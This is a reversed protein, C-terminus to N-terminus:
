KKSFHFLFDKEDKTLSDYGSRSIKDLIDDVRQQDDAAKKQQPSTRAAASHTVHLKRRQFLRTYMQELFDIPAFIDAGARLLLIYGYGVLAGGLHAFYTGAGGRPINLLDILLGALAVYLIPVEGFLLLNFKHQPHLAAAAFAIAMISASAGALLSGEAAPQLVPVLHYALAYVLWGGVGGLLYLPVVRKENLYLVFVEGFWYLWLMNFLLHFIGLHFFQHTFLTWPKYLSQTWSSPAYFWQAIFSVTHNNQSFFDFLFFLSYALFVAANLVILKMVINGYRLQHKLDDALSATLM